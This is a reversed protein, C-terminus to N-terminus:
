RVPPSKRLVERLRADIWKEDRPFEAYSKVDALMPDDPKIGASQLIAYDQLSEAFVEWRISDIPGEPGPYVVFPDGHPIGPWSGGTSMTFPDTLRETEMFHWYNYGWHLFGKAGLRYFMWGSMRVKTLPTDMFRNLWKGRPGCCFYVWHPIGEDIYNQAAEV